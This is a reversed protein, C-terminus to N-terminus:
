YTTFNEGRISLYAIADSLEIILTRQHKTTEKKEGTPKKSKVTTWEIEYQGPMVHLVQSVKPHMFNKQSIDIKQGNFKVDTIVVSQKMDSDEISIHVDVAKAIIM